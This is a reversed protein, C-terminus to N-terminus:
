RCAPGCFQIGHSGQARLLPKARFALPRFMWSSGFFSPSSDALEFMTNALMRLPLFSCAADRPTTKVYQTIQANDTKIQQLLALMANVYDSSHGQIKIEFEPRSMYMLFRRIVDGKVANAVTPETIPTMTMITNVLAPHHGSASGYSTILKALKTFSVRTEGIGSGSTGVGFYYRSGVSRKEDGNGL